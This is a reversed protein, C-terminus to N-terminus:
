NPMQDFLVEGSHPRQHLLSSHHRDHHHYHFYEDPRCRHHHHHHRNHHDYNKPSSSLWPWLPWREVFVSRFIPKTLKRKVSHCFIFIGVHVLFYWYSGFHILFHRFTDFVVFFSSCTSFLFVQKRSYLRVWDRAVSFYWIIFKWLILFDCHYFNCNYFGVWFEQLILAM